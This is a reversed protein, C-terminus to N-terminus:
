SGLSICEQWSSQFICLMKPVENSKLNSIFRDCRQWYGYAGQPDMSFESVITDLVISQVHYNILLINNFTM